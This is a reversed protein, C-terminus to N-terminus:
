IGFLKFLAIGAMLAGPIFGVAAWAWKGGLALGKREGDQMHFRAQLGSIDNAHRHLRQEHNDLRADTKDHRLSSLDLKGEIRTLWVAFSNGGEDM